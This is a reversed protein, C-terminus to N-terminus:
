TNGYPSSSLHVFFHELSPYSFNTRFCIKTSTYESRENSHLLSSKIVKVNTMFFQDFHWVGFSSPNSYNPFSNFSPKIIIEASHLHLCFSYSFCFPSPWWIPSLCLSCNFLQLTCCISMHWSNRFMRALVSHVM